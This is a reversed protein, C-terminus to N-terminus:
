VRLSAHALGIHDVALNRPYFLLVRFQPLLYAGFGVFGFAFVQFLLQILYFDLQSLLVVVRISLLM